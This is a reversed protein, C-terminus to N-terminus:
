KDHTHSLIETLRESPIPGNDFPVSTAIHAIYGKAISLPYFWYKKGNYNIWDACVDLTDFNIEVGRGLAKLLAEKKTWIQYFASFKDSAKQIYEWENQTLQEEYDALEIPITQEIDMGIEANTSGACVVIEDSHAISFNFAEQFYPKNFETYKLSSLALDLEFKELLRLLMLKGLVRSQRERWGKYALIKNRMDDTLSLLMEALEEKSWERNNKTFYVQLM